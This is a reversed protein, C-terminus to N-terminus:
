NTKTIGFVKSGFKLRNKTIFTIRKLMFKYVPYSEFRYLGFHITGPIDEILVIGSIKM